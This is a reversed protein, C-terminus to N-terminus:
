YNGFISHSYEGNSISELTGFVNRVKAGKCLGILGQEWGAFLPISSMDPWPCMTEPGCVKM